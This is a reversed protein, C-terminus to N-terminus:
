TNLKDIQNWHEPCIYRVAGRLMTGVTEGLETDIDQIMYLTEYLVEEIRTGTDLWECASLAVNLLNDETYSWYWYPANEFMYDLFVEPQYGNMPPEEYKPLTPRTQPTPAQTTTPAVTTTEPTQTTTAPEAEVYVIEKGCGTLIITALTATALTKMMM